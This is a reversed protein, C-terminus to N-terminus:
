QQSLSITPSHCLTATYYAPFSIFYTQNILITCTNFSIYCTRHKSVTWTRGTGKAGRDAFACIVGELPEQPNLETFGEPPSTWLSLCHKYITVLHRHQGLFNAANVRPQSHALKEPRTCVKRWFHPAWSQLAPNTSCMRAQLRWHCFIPSLCHTNLPVISAPFSTGGQGWHHKSIAYKDRHLHHLTSNWQSEVRLYIIDPLVQVQM